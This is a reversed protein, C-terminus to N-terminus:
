PPGTDLLSGSSGDKYSVYISGIAHGFASVFFDSGEFALDSNVNSKSYILPRDDVILPDGQYDTALGFINRGVVEGGVPIEASATAGLIVALWFTILIRM